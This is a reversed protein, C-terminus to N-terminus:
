LLKESDDENERRWEEVRKALVTESSPSKMQQRNLYKTIGNLITSRHFPNDIILALDADDLFELVEGNVENEMFLKQYQQMGITSLFIGVEIYDWSEMEHDLVFTM